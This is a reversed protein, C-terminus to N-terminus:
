EPYFPESLIQEPRDSLYALTLTSILTFLVLKCLFRKIEMETLVTTRLYAYSLVSALAVSAVAFVYPNKLVRFADM